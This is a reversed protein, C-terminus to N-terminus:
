RLLNGEQGYIPLQKSLRKSNVIRIAQDLPRRSCKPCPKYSDASYERCNLGTYRKGTIRNFEKAVAGWYITPSDEGARYM